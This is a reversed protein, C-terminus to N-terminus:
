AILDALKIQLSEKIKKGGARSVGIETSISSSNLKTYNNIIMLCYKRQNESLNTNEIMNRMEILTYDENYAMSDLKDVAGKDDDEEGSTMSTFSACNEYNNAKHKDYNMSSNIRFIERRLYTCIMTTLKCNSKNEDYDELCRWIMETITSIMLDNDSDIMQAKCIKSFLGYNDILITAIVEDSRGGRYAEVLDKTDHGGTYQKSVEKFMNLM